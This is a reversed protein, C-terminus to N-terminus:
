YKDKSYASIMPKLKKLLGLVAESVKRLKNNEKLMIDAPPGEPIQKTASLDVNGQLVASHTDCLKLIESEPLGEVILEQEVEVV